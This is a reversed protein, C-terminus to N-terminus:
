VGFVASDELSMVMSPMGQGVFVLVCVVAVPDKVASIMMGVRATPVCVMLAVSPVFWAVVVIFVVWFVWSVVLGVVALGPSGRV